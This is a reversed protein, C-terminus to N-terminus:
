EDREDRGVWTTPFPRFSSKVLQHTAEESDLRGHGLEALDSAVQAKKKFACFRCEQIKSMVRTILQEFEGETVCLDAKAYFTRLLRRLDLNDTNM